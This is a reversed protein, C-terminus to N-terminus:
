AITWDLSVTANASANGAFGGSGNSLWNTVAGNDNRWLIDDLGDGNYDGVGVIRWDVGVSNNAAANGFFGGSDNSLWDTLAGNDNRWLIDARGDGNFDGTGVIKWDTGVVANAAANGAFGGNANALWSTVAGNDNRWLIDARGDGNFDGTGAIKWDTGVTANAFVNGAFGGAANGLWDTLAGSDNRWLIDSRGDGNFDGTGSIKWDTGVAGNAAANGAFGGSANGLWDTLAGSDNRWLIDARGDGNFDGKGAVKWDTGVTANAAANGALGNGTSLWDTLAGNSNRWVIDSRGDGNADAVTARLLTLDVGGAANASAALRGAPANALTLTGGDFSLTTGNLAYAFGAAAADTFTIRDGLGFDTITDGALNTRTGVFLDLGAGGTMRDFGDGGILTDNGDGGDLVDNGGGGDLLDRGYGGLMREVGAGGLLTDNGANGYITGGVSGSRGDYTDDGTYFQVDGVVRGANVVVQSFLDDGQAIDTRNDFGLPFGFRGIQSAADIRLTSGSSGTVNSGPLVVGELILTATSGFRLDVVSSDVNRLHTTSAVVYSSNVWLREFGTMRALDVTREGKDSWTVELTDTGSGGDVVGGLTAVTGGVGSGLRFYDDGAGLRVDGSVTSGPQVGFSDAGDSGIVSRLSSRNLEASHGALSLDVLPNLSDLFNFFDTGALTITQFGSFHQLNGGEEFTVDEFGTLSGGDIQYNTNAIVVRDRGEGGAANLFRFRSGEVRYLDDGAGLDLGQDVGDRDIYSDAGDGLRVQGNILGANIVSDAGASGVVAVEGMAGTNLRIVGGLENVLTTGGVTMTVGGIIRGSGTNTLRVRPGALVAGDTITGSNSYAMDSQDYNMIRGGM